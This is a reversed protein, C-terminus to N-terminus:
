SVKTNLEKTWKPSSSSLKLIEPNQDIYNNAATYGYQFIAEYADFSFEHYETIAQPEIIFRCMQRGAKSNQHTMSRLAFALSDIPKKLETPVIHPIVNVGIITQCTEKIGQAPMNNLLGGDVYFIDGDKVTEFVGPISASASVWKDLDKGSDIIEWEATNLNVVCIHM